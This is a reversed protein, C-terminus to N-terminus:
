EPVVTELGRAAPGTNRRNERPLFRSAVWALAMLAAAAALALRIAQTLPGAYTVRVHDALRAAGSLGGSLRPAYVDVLFSLVAAILANGTAVAIQSVITLLTTGAPVDDGLLPRTAGTMTPMLTAGVGLGTVGGLLALLWYPTTADLVAVRAGTGLVALGVGLGVVTRPQIRDVLRTAVQLMLGTAVAQPLGLAGSLTASDGRVLQVYAPGIVASGFYAAAFLGLTITGAAMAPRRLVGLRLLPHAAHRAHVVFLGVMGVGAVITIAAAPSVLEGDEGALSLGLATLGLGPCLLLLGVVDLKGAARREASPLMRRGVGLVVLGLPVNIWFIWRWSAHDVLAGGLLPGVLPGILVPMGLLSMMRGRRRPEVASLAIAMGVPNLLGGGLGQVMRFAILSGVNWALGTLASGVTFVAIATRYTAGSGFRSM